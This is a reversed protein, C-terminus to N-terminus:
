SIKNNILTDRNQNQEVNANHVIGHGGTKKVKILPVVPPGLSVHRACAESVSWFLCIVHSVSGFYFIAHSLRTIFYIM